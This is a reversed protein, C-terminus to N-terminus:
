SLDKRLLGMHKSAWEYLHNMEHDIEKESMLQRNGRIPIQIDNESSYILQVLYLKDNEISLTFPINQIAKYIARKLIVSKQIEKEANFLIPFLFGEFSPNPNHEICYCAINYYTFYLKLTRLNEDANPDRYQDLTLSFKEQLFKDAQEQFLRLNKVKLSTDGSALKKQIWDM